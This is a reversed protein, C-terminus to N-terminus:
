SIGKYTLKSYDFGSKYAKKIARDFKLKSTNHWFLKGNLHDMEHQFTRATLNAFQKTYVQGDPGSFRVRVHRPRKIPMILNNFSLCGEDLEILEESPTIIKPNICCFNEPSGRMVFVSYSGPLDCQNYALGLAHHEIVYQVMSEALDVIDLPPNNFDWPETPKYLKSKDKSLEIKM